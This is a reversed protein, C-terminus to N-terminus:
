SMPRGWGIQFSMLITISWQSSTIARWSLRCLQQLPCPVPVAMISAFSICCNVVNLLGGEKSDEKVQLLRKVGHFPLLAEHDQFFIIHTWVHALQNATEPSLNHIHARGQLVVACGKLCGRHSRLPGVELLAKWGSPPHLLSLTAFPGSPHSPHPLSPAPHSSSDDLPVAWHGPLLQPLLLHAQWLGHSLRM